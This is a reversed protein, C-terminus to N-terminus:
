FAVSPRHSAVPAYASDRALDAARDPPVLPREPARVRDPAAGLAGEVLALHPLVEIQLDSRSGEGPPAFLLIDGVLRGQVSEVHDPGIHLFLPHGGGGDDFGVLSQAPDLPREPRHLRGVELDARDAVAELRPDAGVEQDAHERVIDFLIHAVREGRHQEVVLVARDAVRGDGLGFARRLGPPFCGRLARARALVDVVEPSQELLESRERHVPDLGRPRSLRSEVDGGRRRRDLRLRQPQQVRLDGHPLGRGFCRTWHVCLRFGSFIGSM